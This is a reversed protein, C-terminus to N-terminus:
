FKGDAQQRYLRNVSKSDPGANQLLYICLTGDGDHFFACGSGMSQPMFYSGTPGPDHVFDLGLEDTADEFWVPGSTDEPPASETTPRSSCSAFLVVILSLSLTGALMRARPRAPEPQSKLM